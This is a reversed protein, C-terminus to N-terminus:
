RYPMPLIASRILEAHLADRDESFLKNADASYMRERFELLMKPRIYPLLTSYRHPNNRDRPPM